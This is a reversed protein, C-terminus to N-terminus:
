PIHVVTLVGAFAPMNRSCRNRTRTAKKNTHRCIRNSLDADISPTTLIGSSGVFLVPHFGANKGLVLVGARSPNCTAPPGIPDFVCSEVPREDFSRPTVRLRSWTRLESKTPRLTGRRETQEDDFGSEMAEHDVTARWGNSGNAKTGAGFFGRLVPVCFVSDTEPSFLVHSASAPLSRGEQRRSGWDLLVAVRRVHALWTRREHARLFPLVGLRGGVVRRSVRCFRLRVLDGPEPELVIAAVRTNHKRPYPVWRPEPVARHVLPEKRGKGAV